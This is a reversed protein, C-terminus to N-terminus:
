RSGGSGQVVAVASLPVCVPAGTDGPRLDVFDAGVRVLAGHLTRGGRLHLACPQRDEALRRLVSRLTLRATVPRAPDPVSRPGLGAVEVVESLHAFWSSGAGSDVLIWDAGAGALRGRLELGGAMAVRVDLGISAHLRAALEVEAYQAVSLEDVEVAREALHLGEAQLELDDLMGLVPDQRGEDRDQWRMGLSARQRCTDFMM